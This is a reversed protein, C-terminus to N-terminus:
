HPHPCFASLVRVPELLPPKTSPSWLPSPIWLSTLRWPGALPGATVVQALSALPPVPPVPVLSIRLRSSLSGLLLKSHFFATVALGESPMRAYTHTCTHTCIGQDSVGGM